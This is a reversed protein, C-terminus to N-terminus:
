PKAIQLLLEQADEFGPAAELSKLISRRADAKKGAAFQARALNYYAEAVNPPNLALAMRFERAALDNEKREFYLSGAKAHPAYEFPNVYFALKLAELAGAKDGVDFRLDAIHRLAEYNNEDVKVLNALTEAAAAKDGTKEYIQSLLVYASGAGAQFPFLEISRKLYGIAKQSDGAAQAISGARLQLVFNDNNAAAQQLVEEKSMQSVGQNKSAVEVAKLYNSVKGRIFEAFAKDFDAESVKLARSLVDAPKTREKYLRLMELIADFGYKEAIFECVQSAEFYALPVDDPRKPRMFGSDLDAIKFWRGESFARLFAPNWDDGWGPRGRREEYVSLGESFWRPVLHNTSQLTIVHTFEHWLTSGWNFEGPQRASASDQAIVKGFCVGLAGLGPVGLTRVAFDEHNAFFEVRIPGEPKFKYKASLTREAEELLDGAYASIAASEKESAKIVFMGRTVEPYEKLSDLLDLTNKAWVNFPDGEFAKEVEARGEDIQGLRLLGNGLSLHSAWLDPELAIARRSFEVGQSYQRTISAFHSLTEYLEGAKPNIALTAKVEGDFEQTRNQLFYLAARVSHADVSNPNIKLASDLTASASAYSESELDLSASLVKAEVYNPNIKLARALATRTEEAGEIRRNQATGLYARASNPNLQLADRFFESADAYQYKSTFLEGGFIHAEIYSKDSDIADLIVENAEKFRGLHALAMAAATESAATSKEEDEYASVVGEFLKSSADKDGVADLMEARRLDARIKVDGKGLESAQRFEEAAERYKGSVALSEGVAAHAGASAKNAAVFKRALADAETYKGTELYGRVLASFVAEDGPVQALRKELAPIAVEYSGKSLAVIPDQAAEQATSCGVLLWLTAAMVALLTSILSGQTRIRNGNRFRM